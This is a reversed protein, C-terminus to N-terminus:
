LFMSGLIKTTIVTLRIVRVYLLLNLGYNYALINSTVSNIQMLLFHTNNLRMKKYSYKNGLFNRASKCIVMTLYCFLLTTASNHANNCLQKIKIKSTYQACKRGGCYDTSDYNLRLM